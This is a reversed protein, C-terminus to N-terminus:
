SLSQDSPFAIASESVLTVKGDCKLKRVGDMRRRRGTGRELSSEKSKRMDQEKRKGPREVGKGAERPIILLRRAASQAFSSVAWAKGQEKDNSARKGEVGDGRCVEGGRAPHRATEEPCETRLLLISM